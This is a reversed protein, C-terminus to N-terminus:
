CPREPMNQVITSPKGPVYQAFHRAMLRTYTDYGGGATSGVVFEITKGKYFDEVSAGARLGAIDLYPDPAVIRRPREGHAV